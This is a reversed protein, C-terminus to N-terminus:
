FLQFNRLYHKEKLTQIEIKALPKQFEFNSNYIHPFQAWDIKWDRAMPATTSPLTKARTPLVWGGRVLLSSMWEQALNAVTCIAGM